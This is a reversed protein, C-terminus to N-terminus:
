PGVVFRRANVVDLRFGYGGMEVDVKDSNTPVEAYPNDYRNGQGGLPVNQGKVTLPATWGFTIEGQSPSDYVVDFGNSEGPQQGAGLPTVVVRAALIASQFAQFSGVDAQRACEVIWVDDAGGNAVLDFPKVRGGTAQTTGNYVLYQAARYSYLAVYGAGFRGFTWNGSEVVEDFYDQPFYAHTYPEYHFYDLPSANTAPYQPAYIHVAVNSVQASRPASAEGNWYGGTEPDDLWNGDQALPRFPHNTFVLANADFTAQWAHMQDNFSGARYDVASSLMFDQTRYTYTDVQRLLGFDLMPNLGAAVAAAFSPDNGFSRMPAFQSFTPSDWFDYQDFTQLTLPVNPWTALAGMGWWIPLDNPDSYSGYVAPPNDSTPPDEPIPLSMRELDTTPGPDAAARLIVEPLVYRSTASLITAGPDAPATGYGYTSTGFLLNTLGWTDENTSSMKNKKYSRGHTVGFADKMTHISLDFFLTDLVMAARTAVEVDPAYDVLTLLPIIDKQYYVNSHWESFGYRLRLDFWRLLEARARAAHAQGTGADTGLPGDPHRTGMLYEVTRYIAQHNESWYYSSDTTGAPTPDTFWFKFSSLAGDIKGVLAPSLIPNTSYGLLINTLYLAIFDRGDDLAAMSSLSGDFADDPVAPATYSPDLKARALAALVTVPNALSATAAPVTAQTLYDLKRGAFWAADAAGSGEVFTGPPPAPAPSSGGSCDFGTALLAGSVLAIRAFWRRM